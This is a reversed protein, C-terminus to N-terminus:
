MESKFDSWWQKKTDYEMDNTQIATSYKNWVLVDELDDWKNGSPPCGWEWSTAEEKGQIIGAEYIELIQNPTFTLEM